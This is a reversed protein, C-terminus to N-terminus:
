RDLSGIALGFGRPDSALVCSGANGPLYRCSAIQVRGPVPAGALAADSAVVNNLLVQAAAGAVAIPAALQGSGAVALRFGRIPANHALAASLLPPTMSGTDPAAALVIGTGQAVRGTGFLNNMTFACAVAGGDRDIAVLGTSAGVPPWAASGGGSSALIAAPEGGGRRWAQAAALGRAAADETSAGGQLAQFAAAAALGGDAPPPLFSLTDVGVRVQVPQLVQPVAGRLETVTLGGGAPGSSEELRRALAGQHMDGVGATRLQALTAALDTQVLQDGEAVTAGGGSRGFIAAAGPDALLPGAVASLDQALARSVPTGFRALSEAPSILEEFTRRGSRAHVAFMGRALLPLAAPRDAGPPPRDRAGPPFVVAETLGRRPDFVLCAGGGGLSARSPLTVALALAAASAADAATGGAALVDRGITAARPEEAVVGGLFGRVFGPTGAQTGGGSLVRDITSCGGLALAALLGAGV